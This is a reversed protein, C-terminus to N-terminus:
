RDGKGTAEAAEKALRLQRLRATREALAQSAAQYEAMATAAERLQTEKKRFIAEGRAKAEVISKSTLGLDGRKIPILM